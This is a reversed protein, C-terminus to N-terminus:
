FKKLSRLTRGCVSGSMLLLALTTKSLFQCAVFTYGARFDPSSCEISKYQSQLAPFLKFNRVKRKKSKYIFAFARALTM